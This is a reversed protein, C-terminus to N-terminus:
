TIISYYGILPLHANFYDIVLRCNEKMDDNSTIFDFIFVHSYERTVSNLTSLTCFNVGDNKLLLMFHNYHYKYADETFHHSGHTIFVILLRNGDDNKLDRIIEYISDYVSNYYYCTKSKYEELHQRNRKYYETQIDVHHNSFSNVFGQWIKFKSKEKKGNEAIRSYEIEYTYRGDNPRYDRILQWYKDCFARQKKEWEVYRNHSEISQQYRKIINEDHVIDAYALKRGSLQQYIKIGEKNQSAIDSAKKIINTSNIWNQEEEENIKRLEELSLSDIIASIKEDNKAFLKGKFAYCNKTYM